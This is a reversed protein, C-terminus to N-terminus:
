GLTRVVISQLWGQSGTLQTGTGDEQYNPSYGRATIKYAVLMLGASNNQTFTTVDEILCVPDPAASSLTNTQAATFIPMSELTNLMPNGSSWSGSAMWNLADDGTDAIVKMLTPNAATPGNLLQTRCYNMVGEAAQLAQVRARTNNNVSNDMGSTQVAALAAFAMVLMLIIAIVLAYGQQRKNLTVVKKM